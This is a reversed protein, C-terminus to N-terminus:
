NNSEIEELNITYYRLGDADFDKKTVESDSIKVRIDGREPDRLILYDSQILNYYLYDSTEKTLWGTHFSWKRTKKVGGGVRTDLGSLSPLAYQTNELGVTEKVKTVIPYTPFGGSRDAFTLNWGTSCSLAKGTYIVKSISDYTVTVTLDDYDGTYVKLCFVAVDRLSSATINYKVGHNNTISLVGKYIGANDKVAFVLYLYSQKQYYNIPSNNFSLIAQNSENFDDLSADDWEEFDKFIFRNSDIDEVQIDGTCCATTNVTNATLKRLDKIILPNVVLSLPYNSINSVDELIVRGTASASYDDYITLTNPSATSFVSKDSLTKLVTSM